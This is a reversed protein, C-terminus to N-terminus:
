TGFRRKATSARPPRAADGSLGMDWVKANGCLSRCAECYSQSCADPLRGSAARPLCMALRRCCMALRLRRSGPPPGCAACLRRSAGALCSTAPALSRSGPPALRRATGRGGWSLPTAPTSRCSRTATSRGGKIPPNRPYVIGLGSLASTLTPAALPHSKSAPRPM